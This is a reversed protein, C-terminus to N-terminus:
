QFSGTTPGRTYVLQPAAAASAGAQCWGASLLVFLVTRDAFVIHLVVPHPLYLGPPHSWNCQFASPVLGWVASCHPMIVAQSTACRSVCRSRCTLVVAYQKHVILGSVQQLWSFPHLVCSGVQQAMGAYSDYMPEFVVVQLVAHVAACSTHYLMYASQVQMLGTSPINKPM